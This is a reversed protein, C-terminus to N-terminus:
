RCYHFILCIYVDTDSSSVIVRKYNAVKIGHNIHFMMRDDAEEHNCELLRTEEFEKKRILFYGALKEKHSGGLYVDQKLSVSEERTYLEKLWIIFFQQLQIKNESSSWFKDIDVPIPQESHSIIVNIATAKARRQRGGHKISSDLYLDFIIDIRECENGLYKFHKWLFQAFEGSTRIKAKKVPVKIAQAMFDIVVMSKIEATNKPMETLTESQVNEEIKRALESKASKRLFGDKTM